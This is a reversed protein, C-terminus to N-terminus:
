PEAFLLLFYEYGYFLMELLRIQPSQKQKKYLLFLTLLIYQGCIYFEM